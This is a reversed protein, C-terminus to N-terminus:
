DCRKTNLVGHLVREWVGYGEESLHVGDVTYAPKLTNNHEAMAGYLDVYIFGKQEAQVQLWRNLTVIEENVRVTYPEDIVPIVSLVYRQPIHALEDLLRSYNEKVYELPTHQLLDNTGIMLIVREPGSALSRKLRYLLGDTTDGPIGHNQHTGVVDDWDHWATLSDGLLLTRM